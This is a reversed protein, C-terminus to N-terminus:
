FVLCSRFDVTSPLTALVICKPSTSKDLDSYPANVQSVLSSKFDFADLSMQIDLCSTTADVKTVLLSRFNVAKSSSPTSPFKSLQERRRGDLNSLMAEVWTVPPSRFDIM